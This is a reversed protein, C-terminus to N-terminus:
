RPEDEGLYPGVKIKNIDDSASTNMYYEFRKLDKKEERKSYPEEFGIRESATVGGRKLENVFKGRELKKWFKEANSEKNM